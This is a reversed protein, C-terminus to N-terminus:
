VVDAVAAVVVTESLAVVATLVVAAAVGVVQGVLREVQGVCHQWCTNSGSDDRSEWRGGMSAGGFSLITKVGNARFYEVTQTLTKGDCGPTEQLTCTQDTGCNQLIPM